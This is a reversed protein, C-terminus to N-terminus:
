TQDGDSYVLETLRSRTAQAGVVERTIRGGQLVLVRDSVDALEEFDSAVLIAGMGEDVAANIAAYLDARAGVDVGQTPDDLLLLLPRRRLWRAVIAKQMNGGSLTGLLARDGATRIGFQAIDARAAAREMGHRLRGGRRFRVIDAASLNERVTMSLMAADLERREPIYAVGLGMMQQVSSPEVDRGGVSLRQAEGRDAGFLMRLLETRGSGLLGAIGVIEGQKVDLDVGKLPGGRLGRVSLAAASQPRRRHTSMVNEVPRGVILHVLDRESLGRTPRTEVHRGDRLVTLADTLNVIEDLRHSVYLISQGRRGYRRLSELLVEVEHEPLAATPEDLVLLSAAGEGDDREDQLARAIAVMTRTAPRLDGILSEATAEIEFRELLGDTRRRLRRWDIAGLRRPFRGGLALNEAVTMTGIVGPNQHVFRLGLRRAIEPTNSRAAIEEEGVLLEGADGRHVGALIKILTSKGSGNGGILGHISGDGVAFSVDDLAQTAGFAKSVHSLRLAAAPEETVGVRREADLAAGGNM